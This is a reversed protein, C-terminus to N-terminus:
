KVYYRTFKKGCLPHVREEKLNLGEERLENVVVKLCDCDFHDKAIEETIHKGQLLYDKIARKTAPDAILWYKSYNTDEEYIREDAIAMGYDNRLAYIVASLRTCRFLEIAKWSTLTNGEELFARVKGIKTELNKSM